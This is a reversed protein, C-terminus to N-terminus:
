MELSIKIWLDRFEKYVVLAENFKKLSDGKLIDGPKIYGGEILGYEFGDSCSWKQMQQDIDINGAPDKNTNIYDLVKQAEETLEM